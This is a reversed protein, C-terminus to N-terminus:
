EAKKEAPAEGGAAPEIKDGNIDFQEVDAAERWKKIMEDLVERRVQTELYPKVADYEPKPRERKDEVKIIHWGFQTKVPAETTEGKGLKFAAEAFEPVMETKAFYGLDGGKEGTADKSNKGALEEFSAGGKLEAILEKAKDESEVLIHRAHVEQVDGMKKIYEDYAKRVRAEDVLKNVERQVYVNRTIQQKALALQQDIQKTEEESLTAKEAKAEIIKSNVVQDLALPYIQQVPIQRMNAPLQQIFNFVDVRTVDQGDVKAVVPNGPKITQGDGATAAADGEAAPAADATKEAETGAAPSEQTMAQSEDGTKAKGTEGSLFALAGVAIVILAGLGIFLGTKSSGASGAPKNNDSM